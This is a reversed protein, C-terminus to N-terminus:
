GRIERNYGVAKVMQVGSGLWRLLISSYQVTGYLMWLFVKIFFLFLAAGTGCKEIGRLIM